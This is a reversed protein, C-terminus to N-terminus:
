ADIELNSKLIEPSGGSFGGWDGVQRRCAANIIPSCERARERTFLEQDQRQFGKLNELPGM